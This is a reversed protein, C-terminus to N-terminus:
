QFFYLIFMIFLTITPTFATTAASAGGKLPAATVNVFTAGCYITIQQAANSYTRSIPQSSNGAFTSFIAMTDQLCSNCTPRAGGALTVGLPLSYPYADEGDNTTNTVANAYCYSGEDDRLCSARYLPEYAILGNYAEVVQANNNDYDVKCASDTILERALSNMGGLCDTFNAACTAELTQTIRIKSQSADFLGTSTLLLLSFPHCNKITDSGLMRNNLFDDCSTTFNNSLGSDYPTPIQFNADSSEPDTDLSRKSPPASITRTADGDHVPPM